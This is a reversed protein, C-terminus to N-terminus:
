RSVMRVFRSRDPQRRYGMAQWLSMAAQESDAVVATLRSAGLERLHAEAARVLGTALGRRRWDPRVALRYFSGRWGDWGVILTGVVEEGVEALLLSSPDRELLRNLAEESDTASPLVDTAQWLSLVSPLDAAGGTRIRWGTM